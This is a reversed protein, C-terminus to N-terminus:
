GYNELDFVNKLKHMKRKKALEATGRRGKHQDKKEKKSLLSM